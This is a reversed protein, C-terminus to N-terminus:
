SQSILLIFRIPYNPPLFIQIPGTTSPLIIYYQILFILFLCFSGKLFLQRDNDIIPGVIKTSQKHPEASTEPGEFSLVMYPKDTLMHDTYTWQLDLKLGYFESLKLSVQAVQKSSMCQFVYLGPSGYSLVLIQFNFIM